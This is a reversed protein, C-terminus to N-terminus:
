DVVGAKAGGHLSSRPPALYKDQHKLNNSCLVPILLFNRLHKKVIVFLLAITVNLYRYLAQPM